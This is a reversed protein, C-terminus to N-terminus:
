KRGTALIDDPECLWLHASVRESKLCFIVFWYVTISTCVMVGLFFYLKLMITSRDVGYRIKHLPENGFEESGLALASQTMAGM